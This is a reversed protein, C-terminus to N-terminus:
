CCRWGRHDEEGGVQEGVARPRGAPDRPHPGQRSGQLLGPAPPRHRPRHGEQQRRHLGRPDPPSSLGCSTSTSSPSGSSTRKSTSTACVSRESTVLTTGTWTPVTTTSGVPLVVVVPTSATSASVVTDPLSTAAFSAPRPLAPLCPSPTPQPTAKDHHHKGM